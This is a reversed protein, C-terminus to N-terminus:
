LEVKLQIGGIAIIDGSSIVASGRVLVDNLLTGNRSGLDQLQWQGERRVILAHQSSAYSDSLVVTNNVARGLSTVSLLPYVTDVVPVGKESAIVRLKGQPREQQELSVATVQMERYILWAIVAVFGLLLLASLLRLFYLFLPFTM